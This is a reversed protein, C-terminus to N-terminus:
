LERPSALLSAGGAARVGESTPSVRPTLGGTQMHTRCTTVTVLQSRCEPFMCGAKPQLLRQGHVQSPGRSARCPGAFSLGGLVEGFGQPQETDHGVTSFAHIVFYPKATANPM